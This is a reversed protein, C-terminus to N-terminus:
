IYPQWYLCYLGGSRVVRDLNIDCWVVPVSNCPLDTMQM